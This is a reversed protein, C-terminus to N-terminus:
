FEHQEKPTEQTKSELRRREQLAKYLARTIRKRNARGHPMLITVPMYGNDRYIAFRTCLDHRDCVRSPSFARYVSRNFKSVRGM